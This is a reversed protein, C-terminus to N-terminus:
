GAEALEKNPVSEPWWVERTFRQCAAEWVERRWAEIARCKPHQDVISRLVMAPVVEHVMNRYDVFNCVSPPVYSDQGYKEDYQFMTAHHVKACDAMLAILYNMNDAMLHAAYFRVMSVSNPMGVDQSRDDEWTWMETDLQVVEEWTLFHRYRFFMWSRDVLNQFLDM